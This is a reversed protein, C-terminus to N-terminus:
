VYIITAEDNGCLMVGNTLAREQSASAREQWHRQRQARTLGPILLLSLHPEERWRDAESYRRRIVRWRLGPPTKPTTPLIRHAHTAAHCESAPSSRSQPRYTHKQKQKKLVGKEEKIKRTHKLVNVSLPTSIPPTSARYVGEARRQDHPFPINDKRYEVMDPGDIKAGGLRLHRQKLRCDPVETTQKGTLKGDQARSM